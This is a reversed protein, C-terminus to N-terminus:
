IHGLIKYIIFTSITFVIGGWLTDKISFALTWKKLTAYNTFDYVGYILVGFLFADTVPRRDKIIFYYLGLTLILYAMVVPIRKFTAPSGQIFSFYKKFSRTNTMIYVIDITLYVIATVILDKLNNKM